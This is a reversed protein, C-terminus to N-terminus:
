PWRDTHARVLFDRVDRALKGEATIISEEHGTGVQDDYVYDTDYLVLIRADRDNGSGSVLQLPPQLTDGKSPERPPLASGLDAREQPTVYSVGYKKGESGVDVQLLTGDGLDIKRGPLPRDHEDRFARAIIEIARREDLARAPNPSRPPPGSCGLLCAVLCLWRTLHALAQM